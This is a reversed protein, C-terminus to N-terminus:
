VCRSTYLLCTPIASMGMITWATPIGAKEIFALFEKEANGLLVGQGFVIFPKKAANIILAAQEIYENRVIPKPRYSRIHICPRYGRYDFIQM